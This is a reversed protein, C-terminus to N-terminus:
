WKVVKGLYVVLMLILSMSNSYMISFSGIQGSPIEPLGNPKNQKFARLPPPKKDNQGQNQDCLVPLVAPLQFFM